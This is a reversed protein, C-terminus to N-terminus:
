ATCVIMPVGKIVKYIADPFVEQVLPIYAKTEKNEQWGKKTTKGVGSPKKVTKGKDNQTEIKDSGEYTQIYVSGGSRVLRRINKLATIKAADGDIVNLVNCCTCSDAGGYEKIIDLVERNHEKSRNFPDFVLNMVDVQKLYEVAQNYRGGGYDLNLSGAPLIEAVAKVGGALQNLSTAASDYQQEQVFDWIDQLDDDVSFGEQILDELDDDESFAENKLSESVSRNEWDKFEANRFIFALCEALEKSSICDVIDQNLQEKTWWGSDIAFDYADYAESDDVVWGYSEAEDLRKVM